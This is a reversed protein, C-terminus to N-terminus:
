EQSPTWLAHGYCYGRSTDQNSLHHGCHMDMVIAVHPIKIALITDAITDMNSFFVNNKLLWYVCYFLQGCQASGCFFFFDM